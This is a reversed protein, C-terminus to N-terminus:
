KIFERFKPAVNLAELIFYVIIWAAYALVLGTVVKIFIGKAETVKSANGGATMMLFGAYIFAFVALITAFYLLFKIVRNILEILDLWGCVGTCKVISYGTSGPEGGQALVLLPINLIFLFGFLM